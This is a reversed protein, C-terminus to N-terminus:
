EEEPKTVSGAAARRRLYRVRAAAIQRMWTALSVGGEEKLAWECDAREAATLRLEFREGRM